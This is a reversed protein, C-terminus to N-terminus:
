LRLQATIKDRLQAGFFLRRDISQVIGDFLDSLFQLVDNSFTNFYADLDRCLVRVSM